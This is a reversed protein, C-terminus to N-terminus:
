LQGVPHLGADLLNINETTSRPGISALVPTQNGAEVVTVTVIESDALVGDSATFTVNYTGARTFDPTWDFLGTGDGNDV